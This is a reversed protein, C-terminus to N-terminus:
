GTPVFLIDLHENDKIEIEADALDEYYRYRRPIDATLRVPVYWFDGSRHIRETLVEIPVGAPKHDDLHRRSIDAIRETDTEVKM